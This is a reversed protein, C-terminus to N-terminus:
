NARTGPLIHQIVNNVNCAYTFCMSLTIAWYFQLVYHDIALTTLVVISGILTQRHTPKEDIIYSEDVIKYSYMLFLLAANVMNWIPFVIIWGQFTSVQHIGAYVASFTNAAVAFLLMFVKEFDNIKRQTFVHIISIIIGSIPLMFFVLVRYDFDDFVFHYADSRLDSYTLLILLFSISMLFLVHSNYQPLFLKIIPAIRLNNM